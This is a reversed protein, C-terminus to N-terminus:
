SNGVLVQLPTAADHMVEQPSDSGHGVMGSVKDNCNCGVYDYLLLINTDGSRQLFNNM